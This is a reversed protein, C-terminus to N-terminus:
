PIRPLAALAMQQEVGEQASAPLKDKLSGAVNMGVQFLQSGKRFDLIVVNGAETFYAEDGVGSVAKILPGGQQAERWAEPDANLAFSADLGSFQDNPDAYEWQCQQGDNQSVGTGVPEGTAAAVEAQTLLACPDLTGVASSGTASGPSAAGGGGGGGGATGSPVSPAPASSGAGNAPTPTASASSSGCAAVLVLIGLIAAPRLSRFVYMGGATAVERSRIPSDNAGRLPLTSLM